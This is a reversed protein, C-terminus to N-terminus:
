QVAMILVFFIYYDKQPCGKTDNSSPDEALPMPAEPDQVTDQSNKPNREEHNGNAQPIWLYNYSDEVNAIDGESLKVRETTIM